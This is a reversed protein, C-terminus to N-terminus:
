VTVRLKGTLLQQMLGKKLEIYKEKEQQYSKIQEDVSSIIEAIKRQEEINPIIVPISYFDSHNLDPITTSGALIKIRQQVKESCLYIYLFNKDFLSKNYSIKFFNNHFVGEVGTVVIGTNGTRTMLIDDKTCVVSSTPNEIYYVDESSKLAQITIYFYRHGPNELYRSAIPIQLGQNVKTVERFTKIEWNAPIEGIITKKFETHEIGKTLLKQMLGKKLEKTKDILQNINEIQEDVTSLIDAIRQQEALSPLVVKFSKIIGLNLGSRGEGTIGRLDNYRSELYYFLYESNYKESPLIGALSQNCTTETHLIAVTGRTKGQGNMAMMITQVPLWTTNSNKFGLESIREKVDYIRKLNIEGSTMWPITGEQWYEPKAKSPTGGTKVGAIDNIQKVSWNIPIEGIETIKYGELAVKTDTLM